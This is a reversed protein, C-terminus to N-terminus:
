CVGTERLLVQTRFVKLNGVQGFPSAPASISVELTLGTSEPTLDYGRSALMIVIDLVVRV